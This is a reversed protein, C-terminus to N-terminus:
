HLHFGELTANDRLNYQKIVDEPFTTLKLKLYEYRKLPTNLYSNKIGLSMFKAVETLIVVNFLLKVILLGATPTGCNDPYNIRDEGVTLRTHHKEDKHECVDCVVRGYTCDQFRDVM